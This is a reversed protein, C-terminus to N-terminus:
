VTMENLLNQFDAKMRKKQEPEAGKWIERMTAITAAVHENAHLNMEDKDASSGTQTYHRKARNWDRFARGNRMEEMEAQDVMPTYGMRYGMSEKFKEPDELYADTYSMETMEPTMAGPHFGRMYRGTTSSRNPNYGMGMSDGDSNPYGMSSGWPQFSPMQILPNYGMSYRNTKQEEESEEMSKVVKEYYMAMWCEKEAEALDKIMDIADGLEKTDVAEKGKGVEECCWCTIDEKMKSVKELRAKKEEMDM